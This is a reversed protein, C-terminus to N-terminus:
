VAALWYLHKLIHKLYLMYCDQRSFKLGIMSVHLSVQQFNSPIRSQGVLEEISTPAGRAFYVAEKVKESSDAVLVGSRLLNPTFEFRKLIILTTMHSSKHHSRKLPLSVLNREQM